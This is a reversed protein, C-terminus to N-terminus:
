HVTPRRKVLGLRCFPGAPFEVKQSAKSHRKNGHQQTLPKMRSREGSQGDEAGGLTASGRGHTECSYIISKVYLM